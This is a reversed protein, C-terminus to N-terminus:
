RRINNSYHNLRKNKFILSKAVHKSRLGTVTRNNNILLLPELREKRVDTVDQRTVFYVEPIKLNNDGTPDETSDPFVIYIIIKKADDGRGMKIHPPATAVLIKYDRLLPKIKPLNGFNLSNVFTTDNTKTQFYRYPFIIRAVQNTCGTGLGMTPSSLTKSLLERRLDTDPSFDQSIKAFLAGFTRPRFEEKTSIPKFKISFGNKIPLSEIFFYPFVLIAFIAKM